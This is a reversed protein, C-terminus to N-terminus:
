ILKWWIRLTRPYLSLYKTAPWLASPNLRDNSVKKFAKKKFEALLTPSLGKSEMENLLNDIDNQEVYIIRNVFQSNQKAKELAESMIADHAKKVMNPELNVKAAADRLEQQM